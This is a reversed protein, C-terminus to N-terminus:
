PPVGMTATGQRNAEIDRILRFMVLYMQYYSDPGTNEYVFTPAADSTGGPDNPFYNQVLCVNQLIIVRWMCLIRHETFRNRHRQLYKKGEDIEKVLSDTSPYFNNKTEESYTLWRQEITPNTVASAPMIVDLRGREAWDRLPCDTPGRENGFLSRGSICIMRVNDAVPHGKLYWRLLTHIDGKTTSAWRLGMQHTAIARQAIGLFPLSLRLTVFSVCSTIVHHLVLVTFHGIQSAQDIHLRALIREGSFIWISFAVAFSIVGLVTNFTKPHTKRFRELSYLRRFVWLVFHEAWPAPLPRIGEPSTSSTV